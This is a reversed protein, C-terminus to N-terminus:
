EVVLKEKKKDALEFDTDFRICDVPCVDICLGCRMCKTSDVSKIFHLVQRHIINRVKITKMKKRLKIADTPCFMGCLGCGTCKKVDFVIKGRFRQFPKIKEKPYKKTFPKRSVNKLVESIIGM